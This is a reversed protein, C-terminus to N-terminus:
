EIPMKFVMRTMIVIEMGTATGRTIEITMRRTM